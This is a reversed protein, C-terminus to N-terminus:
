FHRKYFKQSILTAQSIMRRIPHGTKKLNQQSILIQLRFSFSSNTFSIENSLTSFIPTTIMHKQNKLIKYKKFYLKSILNKNNIFLYQM